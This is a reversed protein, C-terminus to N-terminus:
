GMGKDLSYPVYSVSELFQSDVHLYEASNCIASHVYNVLNSQDFECWKLQQEM